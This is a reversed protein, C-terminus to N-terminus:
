AHYRENRALSRALSLEVRITKDRSDPLGMVEGVLQAFAPHELLRRKKVAPTCRDWEMVASELYRLGWQEQKMATGHRLAKVQRTAQMAISDLVDATSGDTDAHEWLPGRTYWRELTELASPLAVYFSGVGIYHELTIVKHTMKGPLFLTDGEGVLFWRASPVSLFTNMDFAARKEVTDIEVDELGRVRGEYTDWALWLKTGLFAHNSGDPDDSHSDTVNGESSVVLTMMEQVAM